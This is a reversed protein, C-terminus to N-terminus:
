LILLADGYPGFRYGEKLAIEYAYRVSKYGGFASVCMLSPSNPVHFNSVIADPIRFQYDPFSPRIFLGTTGDFTRVRNNFTAATELGRMVSVGIAVIKKGTQKATNISDAAKQKVTLREADQWQWKEHSDWSWFLSKVDSGPSQESDAAIDPQIDDDYWQGQSRKKQVGPGEVDNCGTGAPLSYFHGIGLHLTIFAKEIDKLIMRNLLQRSFHLGAAPASVAGEHAAFITQYNETDEPTVSAKVWPPIFPVGLGFLTQKFAEDTGNFQFQVTLNSISQPSRGLVKAALPPNKGFLLTCNTYVERDKGQAVNLLVDWIRKAPDIERLLIVQIPLRSLATLVAPIVKTNNLVFLDGKGFYDLIDKFHERHEIEGTDKHFVMLRAEDRWIPPNKAIQGKSFKFFNFDYDM